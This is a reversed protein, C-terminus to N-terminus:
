AGASAKEKAHAACRQPTTISETGLRLRKTVKNNQVRAIPARKNRWDSLSETEVAFTIPKRARVIEKWSMAFINRLDRAASRANDVCNSM